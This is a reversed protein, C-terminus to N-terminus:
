PPEPRESSSKRLVILSPIAFTLIKVSRQTAPSFAIFFAIVQKDTFMKDEELGININRFLITSAMEIAYINYPSDKYKGNFRDFSRSPNELDYNKIKCKKAYEKLTTLNYAEDISDLIAILAAKKEEDEM